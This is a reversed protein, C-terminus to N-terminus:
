FRSWAWTGALGTELGFDVGHWAIRVSRGELGGDESALGAGTGLLCAEVEGDWGDGGGGNGAIDIYFGM